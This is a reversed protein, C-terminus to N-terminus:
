ILSRVSQPSTQRRSHLRNQLRAQETANQYADILERKKEEAIDEDSVGTQTGLAYGTAAGLGSAGLVGATLGLKGLFAALSGTGKAVDGVLGAQKELCASVLLETEEISLGHEACQKLFGFKFRERDTLM